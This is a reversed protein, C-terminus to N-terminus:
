TINNENKQKQPTSQKADTSNNVGTSQSFVKRGVKKVYELREVSFNRRLQNAVRSFYLEDWVDPIETIQISEDHPEYVSIGNEEAYKIADYVENTKFAADTFIMTVIAGRTNCQNKNEVCEALFDNPKYM